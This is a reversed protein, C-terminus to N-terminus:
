LLQFARKLAYNIILAIYDTVKAMQFMQCQVLILIIIASRDPTNSKEYGKCPSELTEM